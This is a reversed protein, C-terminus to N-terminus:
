SEGEESKCRAESNEQESAEAASPQRCWSRSPLPETDRPKTYMVETRLTYKIGEKVLSGEHALDQSFLLVSGAEPQHGIAFETQPDFTTAGGYSQPVDHLYVQVTIISRDGKRLGSSRKFCGDYHEEFAQGPTYCLFRLRENLEVLRGGGPLVAPLHPRIANLLWVAVEPSDVIVRHGDRVEAMLQQQDNGINLLAPTFGKENVAAVLSAGQEETIVGRLVRAFTSDRRKRVPLDEATIFAHRQEPDQEMVFTPPSWAEKTRDPDHKGNYFVQGERWRTKHFRPPQLDRRALKPMVSCLQSAQADTPPQTSSFFLSM